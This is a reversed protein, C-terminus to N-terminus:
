SQDSWARGFLNEHMKRYVFRLLTEGEGKIVPEMKKLAEVAEQQKGLHLDYEAEIYYRSYYRKSPASEYSTIQKVLEGARDYSGMLMYYNYYINLSAMALVDNKFDKDLVPKARDILATAGAKDNLGRLTEMLTGYYMLASMGQDIFIDSRGTFDNENLYGFYPLAKDYQRIINYYDAPYLIFDKLYVANIKEGNKHAELAKGCMEFFSDTYGNKFLERMMEAHLKGYPDKKERNMMIKFVIFAVPIASVLVILALIFPNVHFLRYVPIAGAIGFLVVVIYILGITKAYVSARM